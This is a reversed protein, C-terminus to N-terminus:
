RCAVALNESPKTPICITAGTAVHGNSIHNLSAIMDATQETSLGVVPHQAALTWLTQGSEIRIRESVVSASAHHATVVTATVLALAILVLAVIEAWAVARPHKRSARRATRTETTFRTSRAAVTSSM